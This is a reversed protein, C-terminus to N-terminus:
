SCKPFIWSDRQKPRSDETIGVCIFHYWLLCKDCGVSEEEFKTPGNVVERQCTGCLCVSTKVLRKKKEPKTKEKKKKIHTKQYGDAVVQEPTLIVMSNCTTANSESTTAHKSSSPQQVEQLAQALDDEELQHKLNCIVLEPGIFKKWFWVLKQLVECWFEKDFLIREKHYGHFTFVFFDTYNGEAVGMQGQIQFYYDSNKKVKTKGNRLELYSLNKDSPVQHKISGPCKFEAHGKGCCDCSIDLDTSVSIFPYEEMVTMGPDIYTLNTHRESKMLSLYKTKAHVETAIGHKMQWTPRFIKYGLVTSILNSPDENPNNQLTTTRTYISKFKSATLRGKRQNIWEANEFQGVTKQYLTAIDELKFKLETLLRDVAKSSEIFELETNQRLDKAIDIVSPKTNSQLTPKTNTQVTSKQCSRQGEMFEEFCSGPVLGKLKTYLDNQVKNPQQLYSLQTDSM